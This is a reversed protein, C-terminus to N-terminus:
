FGPWEGDFRVGEERQRVVKTHAIREQRRSSGETRRSAEFSELFLDLDSRHNHGSRGKVWMVCKQWFSM